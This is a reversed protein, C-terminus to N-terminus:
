ECAEAELKKNKNLLPSSTQPNEQNMAFGYTKLINSPFIVNSVYWSGTAGM